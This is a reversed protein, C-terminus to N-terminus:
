VNENSGLGVITCLAHKSELCNVSLYPATLWLEDETNSHQLRGSRQKIGKKSCKKKGTLIKWKSLFSDWQRKKVKKQEVRKSQWFKRLTWVRTTCIHQMSVLGQAWLALGRPHPFCSFPHTLKHKPAHRCVPCQWTGQYCSECHKCGVPARGRRRKEWWDALSYVLVKDALNYLLFRLISLKRPCLFTVFNIM